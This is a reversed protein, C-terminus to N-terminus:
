TKRATSAQSVFTVGAINKKITTWYTLKEIPKIFVSKVNLFFNKRLLTKLKLLILFLEM